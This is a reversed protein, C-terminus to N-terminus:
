WPPEEESWRWGAGTLEAVSAIVAGDLVFWDLLDIGAEALDQRMAGFAVHDDGGVVVGRGPRVTALVVAGLSPENAAAQVLLPVLSAVQEAAAAGRCVLCVHGRHTADLLLVVTEAEPPQAIAALVVRLADDPSRLPLSAGPLTPSRRHRRHARASRSM